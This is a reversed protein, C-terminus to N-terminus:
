GTSDGPPAPCARGSRSGRKSAFGGLSSSPRRCKTHPFVGSKRTAAARARRATRLKQRRPPCRKSQERFLQPVGEAGRRRGDGDGGARRGERPCKPLTCQKPPATVPTTTGGGGPGRGLRTCTARPTRRTKGVRRRTWDPRRAARKEKRGIRRPAARRRAHTTHGTRSRRLRPAASAANSPAAPPPTVPGAAPSTAPPTVGREGGGPARLWGLSDGPTVHGPTEWVFFMPQEGGRGM